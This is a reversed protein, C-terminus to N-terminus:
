IHVHNKVGKAFKEVMGSGLKYGFLSVMGLIVNLPTVGGRTSFCFILAIAELATAIIFKAIAGKDINATGVTRAYQRAKKMEAWGESQVFEVWAGLLIALLLSTNTWLSWNSLAKALFGQNFLLYYNEISVWLSWFMFGGGSFLEIIAMFNKVLAVALSIVWTVLVFIWSVIAEITNHSKQKVRHSRHERIPVYTSHPTINRPQLVEVQVDNNM